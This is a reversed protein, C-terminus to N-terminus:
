GRSRIYFSAQNRDGGTTVSEGSDCYSRLSISCADLRAQQFILQLASKWDAFVQDSSSCKAPLSARAGV